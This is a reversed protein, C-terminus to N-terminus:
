CFRCPRGRLKPFYAFCNFWRVRRHCFDLELRDPIEYALIESRGVPDGDVLGYNVLERGTSSVPLPDVHIRVARALFTRYAAGNGVAEQAQLQNRWKAHVQSESRDVCRGDEVITQVLDPEQCRYSRTVANAKLKGYCTDFRLVVPTHQDLAARYKLDLITLRRSQNGLRECQHDRLGGDGM